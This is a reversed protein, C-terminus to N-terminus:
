AEVKNLIEIFNTFSNAILYTNMEDTSQEFHHAHDYYYVGDNEGDFVLLIFGGGPDDGILLSNPLIDNKYEKNWFDLNFVRKDHNLGYFSDIIIEGLEDVHFIGDVVKAANNEILFLKYDKPLIINFEKEFNSISDINGTNRKILEM